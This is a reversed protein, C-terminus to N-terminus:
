VSIGSISGGNDKYSDILKQIFTGAQNKLFDFTKSSALNGTTEHTKGHTLKDTFSQLEQETIKGDSNNDINEVISNLLEKYSPNVINNEGDISMGAPMGSQVSQARSKDNPNEVATKNLQEELAKVFDENSIGDTSKASAKQGANLTANNIKNFMSFIMSQMDKNQVISNIISSM